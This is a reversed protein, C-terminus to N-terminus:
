KSKYGWNRLVRIPLVDIRGIHAAGSEEHGSLGYARRSHGFSDQCRFAQIQDVSACKGEVGKPFNIVSVGSSILVIPRM